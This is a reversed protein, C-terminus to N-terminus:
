SVDFTSDPIDDFSYDSFVVDMTMQPQAMDMYAKLPVGRENWIWVTLTMLNPQIGVTLNIVTAKKGDIVETPFTVVSQNYLLDKIMASDLYKFATVYSPVETTLEYRQLPPIRVYTGEPRQIVSLSSPFGATVSTIDERLNPKELWVKMTAQTSTNFSPLDITADIQYSMSAIAEAKALIELPTEVTTTQDESPGEETCGMLGVMTLILAFVVGLTFVHREMM